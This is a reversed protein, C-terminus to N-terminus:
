DERSRRSHQQLIPSPLPGLIALTSVVNSRCSGESVMLLGRASHYDSTEPPALDTPRTTSAEALLTEHVPGGDPHATARFMAPAHALRVSPAVAPHDYVQMRCERLRPTAQRVFGFVTRAQRVVQSDAGNCLIGIM